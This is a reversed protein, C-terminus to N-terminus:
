FQKTNFDLNSKHHNMFALGLFITPNVDHMVLFNVEEDIAGVLIRVRARGVVAMQRGDATELRGDYKELNPSRDLEYITNLNILNVSAGTDLLADVERGALKVKTVASLKGGELTSSSNEPDPDNSSLSRAKEALAEAKAKVLSPIQRFNVTKFEAPVFSERVPRGAGRLKFGGVEKAYERLTARRVVNM